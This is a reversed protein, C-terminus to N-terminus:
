RACKTRFVLLVLVGDLLQVDALLERQNLRSLEAARYIRLENSPTKHHQRAKKVPEPDEGETKVVPDAHSGGKGRKASSAQGDQGNGGEDEEDEEDSGAHLFPFGFLIDPKSSTKWVCNTM